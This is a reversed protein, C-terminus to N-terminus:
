PRWVPPPTLVSTCAYYRPAPLLLLRELCLNRLGEDIEGVCPNSRRHCRTCHLVKLDIYSASLLQHQSCQLNLLEAPVCVLELLGSLQVPLAADLKM